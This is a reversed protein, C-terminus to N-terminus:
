ALFREDITIGRRTHVETNDVIRRINYISSEITIREINNGSLGLGGTPPLLLGPTPSYMLPDPLIGVDDGGGLCTDDEVRRSIM